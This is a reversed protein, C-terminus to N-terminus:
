TMHRADLWHAAPIPSHTSLALSCRDGLQLLPSTMCVSPLPQPFITPLPHFLTGYLFYAVAIRENTSIPVYDYLLNLVRSCYERCFIDDALYLVIYALIKKFSFFLTISHDICYSFILRVIYDATYLFYSKKPSLNPLM